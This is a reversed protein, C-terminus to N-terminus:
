FPIGFIAKLTLKDASATLGRGIGFNVSWKGFEADVTGYLTRAQGSFTPRSTTGADAYYEIGIAVDHAVTRAIKTGFSLDATGSRL